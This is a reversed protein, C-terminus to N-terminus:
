ISAFDNEVENEDVHEMFFSEELNQILEEAILRHNMTSNPDDNKTDDEEDSQLEGLIQMFFSRSHSKQNDRKMGGIM